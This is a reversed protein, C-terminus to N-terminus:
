VHHCRGAPRSGTVSMIVSIHLFEGTVWILPDWQSMVRRVHSPDLRFRRRCPRNFHTLGPTAHRCDAHLGTNAIRGILRPLGWIEASVVRPPPCSEASSVDEGESEYIKLIKLINGAYRRGFWCQLRFAAAKREKDLVRMGVAASLRVYLLASLPWCSRCDPDM